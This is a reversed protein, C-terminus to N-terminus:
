IPASSSLQNEGDDTEPKKGSLNLTFEIGDGGSTVDVSQKPKGETRDVIRDFDVGSRDHLEIEREITYTGDKNVHTKQKFKKIAETNVGARKMEGLTRAGSLLDAYDAMDPSEIIRIAREAAGRIPVSQNKDKAIKRLDFETLEHHSFNNLHEKLTMGISPRGSPNGSQGKKFRTHEPPCPKDLTSPEPAPSPVIEENAM